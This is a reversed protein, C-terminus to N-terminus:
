EGGAWAVFATGEERAAAQFEQNYRKRYEEQIFRNAAEM